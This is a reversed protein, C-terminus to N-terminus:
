YGWWRSQSGRDRLRLHGRSGPGGRGRGPSERQGRTRSARPGSRPCLCLPCRCGACLSPVSIYKSKFTVQILNLQPACVYTDYTDLIMTCDKLLATFIKNHKNTCWFMRYFSVWSVWIKCNLMNCIASCPECWSLPINWKARNKLRMSLEFWHYIPSFVFCSM